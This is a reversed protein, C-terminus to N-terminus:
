SNHFIRLWERWINGRSDGTQPEGTVHMNPRRKRDGTDRLKTEVNVKKRKRQQELYYRTNNQIDIYLIYIYKIIYSFVYKNHIKYIRYIKSYLQVNQNM